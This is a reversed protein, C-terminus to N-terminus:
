RLCPHMEKNYEKPTRSTDKEYFFSKVSQSWWFNFWKNQHKYEDEYYAADFIALVVPVDKIPINWAKAYIADIEQCIEEAMLATQEAEKDLAQM